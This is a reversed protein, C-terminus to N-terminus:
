PRRRLVSGISKIAAGRPALQQIVEKHEAFLVQFSQQFFMNRWTLGPRSFPGHSGRRPGADNYTRAGSASKIQM